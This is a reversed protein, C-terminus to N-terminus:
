LIRLAFLVEVIVLAVVVLISAIGLWRSEPIHTQFESKPKKM